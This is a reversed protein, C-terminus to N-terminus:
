ATECPRHFVLPPAPPPFSGPEKASEEAEARAQRAQEAALLRAAQQRVARPLFRETETEFRAAHLFRRCRENDEDLREVSEELNYVEAQLREVNEQTEQCRLKLGHELKQAGLQYCCEERQIDQLEEQVSRLTLKNQINAKLVHKTAEIENALEEKLQYIRREVPALHDRFGIQSSSIRELAEDGRKREHKRCAKIDSTSRRLDCLNERDAATYRWGAECRNNLEITPGSGAEFFVGDANADEDDEGAPVFPIEVADLTAYMALLTSTPEKSSGLLPADGVDMDRASLKSDRLGCTRIGLATTADARARRLNRLGPACGSANPFRDRNRQLAAVLRAQAGDGLNCGDVNVELIVHNDDLADILAQIGAIGIRNSGIDISFLLSNRRVVEALRQMARDSLCTDRLSIHQLGSHEEFAVCWTELIRHDTGIDNGDLVLSRAGRLGCKVATALEHAAERWDRLASVEVFKAHCEHRLYQSLSVTTVPDLKRHAFIFSGTVEAAKVQAQLVECNDSRCHVSQPSASLM